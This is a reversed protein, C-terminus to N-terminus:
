SGASLDLEGLWFPIYSLSSAFLGGKVWLDHDPDQKDTKDSIHNIDAMLEGEESAVAM